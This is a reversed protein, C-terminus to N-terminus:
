VLVCDLLLALDDARQLFNTLTEDEGKKIYCIIHDTENKIGVFAVTHGNKKYFEPSGVVLKRM